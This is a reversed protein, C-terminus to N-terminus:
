RLIIHMAILAIIGVIGVLIGVVGVCEIRKLTEIQDSLADNRRVADSEVRKMERAINQAVDNAKKTFEATTKELIDSHQQYILRLKGLTDDIAQANSTKIDDPIRAILRELSESKQKIVEAYGSLADNRRIADSEVRKIEGVINQAVDNAEKTFKTTTKELIDNHQHYVLRLKDLADDIAQVNAAKIDDPIRAILRELSESKQKIAEAHGSLADNRRIADSEVRKMGGVINQAVDNAEKTFKTTTKELIDNHQQYVLRLKDLAGDIAQANSTKIDDPVLAILSELSEAKKRITEAHDAVTKVLADVSDCLGNSSSVNKYFKEIEQELQEITKTLM